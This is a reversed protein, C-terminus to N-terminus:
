VIKYIPLSSNSAQTSLGARAGMYYKRISQLENVADSIAMRDQPSEMSCGVGVKMMRILCEIKEGNRVQTPGENRNLRAEEEEDEQLLIPDVIEVAHDPLAMRACDHLNLGEVFINDTPKKSTMMELLLIGYSYVDGSTSPDSGLGYEVIIFLLFFHFIVTVFQINFFTLPCGHM